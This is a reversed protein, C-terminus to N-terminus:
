LDYRTFPQLSRKIILFFALSVSSREGREVHIKGISTFQYSGWFISISVADQKYM